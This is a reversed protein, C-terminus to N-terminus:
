REHLSRACILSLSVEFPIPSINQLFRIRLSCFLTESRGKCSEANKPLFRVRYEDNNYNYSYVCKLCHTEFVFSIKIKTYWLCNKIKLIVFGRKERDDPM